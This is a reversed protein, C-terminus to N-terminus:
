YNPGYKAEIKKTEEYPPVPWDSAIGEAGIADLTELSLKLNDALQKKLIGKRKEQYDSFKQLLDKPADFQRYLVIYNLWGSKGDGSARYYIEGDDVKKYSALRIKKGAQVHQIKAMAAIPNKPKIEPILPIDSKSVFSFGNPLNKHYMSWPYKKEADVRSRVDVLYIKQFIDKRKKEALGFKETAKKSLADLQRESYTIGDRKDILMAVWQGNDYGDLYAYVGIMTTKSEYKWGKRKASKDWIEQLTSKLNDKTINGTVRIKTFVGAKGPFDQIDENIITYNMKPEVEAAVHGAPESRNTSKNEGTLVAIVVFVILGVVVWVLTKNSGASRAEMTQPPAGVPAFFVKNCALCKVNTTKTIKSLDRTSGCYPCDVLRQHESM